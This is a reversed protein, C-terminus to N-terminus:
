EIVSSSAQTRCKYIVDRPRDAKDEQGGGRPRGNKLSIHPLGMYFHFIIRDRIKIANSHKFRRIASSGNLAPSM